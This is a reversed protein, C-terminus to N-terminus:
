RHLWLFASFPFIKWTYLIADQTQSEQGNDNSAAVLTFVFAKFYSQLDITLRLSM